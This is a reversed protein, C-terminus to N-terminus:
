ILDGQITDFRNKLKHEARTKMMGAVALDRLADVDALSDEIYEKLHKLDFPNFTFVEKGVEFNNEIFSNRESLVASGRNQANFFRETVGNTYNPLHNFTMKALCMTFLGTGFGPSLNSYTVPREIIREILEKQPSVVTLKDFGKLAKFMRLRNEARYLNDIWCLIRRLAPKDSVSIDLGLDRETDFALQTLSKREGSRLRESVGAAFKRYPPQLANLRESSPNLKELDISGVFLLEVPRKRFTRSVFDEDAVMPGLDTAWHPFHRPANTSGFWYPIDEITDGDACLWFQRESTGQVRSHHIQFPNDQHWSLAKFNRPLGLSEASNNMLFCIDEGTIDEYAYEVFSDFPGNVVNWREASLENAIDQSAFYTFENTRNIINVFAKRGM